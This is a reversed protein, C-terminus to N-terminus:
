SIIIYGKRKLDIYRHIKESLSNGPIKNLDKNNIYIILNSLVNTILM